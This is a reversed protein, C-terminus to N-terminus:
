KSEDGDKKCGKDPCCMNEKKKERDCQDQKDTGRDKDNGCYRQAEQAIVAEDSDGKDKGKHHDCCSMPESTSGTLVITAQDAHGNRAQTDALAVQYGAIAVAISALLAIAIPKTKTSKKM